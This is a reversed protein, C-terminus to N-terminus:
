QHIKSEILRPDPFNVLVGHNKKQYVVMSGVGAASCKTEKLLKEIDDLNKAGGCGIVPIDVNSQVLKYLDLDYGEWTGDRDICNLLIEGAGLFECNKTWELLDLNTKKRGGHSYIVYNSGFFSKRVDISVVVAQSGYVSVIENILKPNSTVASNIIVKEIGLDFIMKAKELSDIGGGYSLPMFAESAISEILHLKLDQKFISADIDLISLEDVELENFIRVTNCPDGIYSYKKFKVTKVLGEGKLLLVPIIRSRLM